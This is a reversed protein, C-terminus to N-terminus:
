MAKLLGFYRTSSFKGRKKISSVLATAGVGNLRFRKLKTPLKQPDNELSISFHVEFKELVEFMKLLILSIQQLWDVISTAKLSYKHLKAQFKRIQASCM